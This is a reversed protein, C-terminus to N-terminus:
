RARQLTGAGNAHLPQRLNQVLLVSRGVAQEMKCNRLGRPRVSSGKFPWYSLKNWSQTMPQHENWPSWFMSATKIGSLFKIMEVDELCHLM